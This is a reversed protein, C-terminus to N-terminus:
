KRVDDHAAVAQPMGLLEFMKVARGLLGGLRLGCREAGGRRSGIAAASSRSRMAAIRSPFFDPEMAREAAEEVVIQERQDDHDWEVEDDRKVDFAVEDIWEEFRAACPGRDRLEHQNKKVSSSRPVPCAITFYKASYRTLSGPARDAVRLEEDPKMRHGPHELDRRQSQHGRYPQRVGRHRIQGPEDIRCVSMWNGPKM